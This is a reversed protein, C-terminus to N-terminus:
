QCVLQQSNFCFFPLTGKPDIKPVLLTLDHCFSYVRGLNKAVIAPQILFRQVPSALFSRQYEFWIRCRSFHLKHRMSHLFYPTTTATLDPRYGTGLLRFLSPYAFIAQRSSAPVSIHRALPFYPFKRFTPEFHVTTVNRGRLSGFYHWLNRIIVSLSRNGEQLEKRFFCSLGLRIHTDTHVSGTDEVTAL